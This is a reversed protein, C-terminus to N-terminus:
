FRLRSHHFTSITLPFLSVTDFNNVFKYFIVCSFNDIYETFLYYCKTMKNTYGKFLTKFAVPGEDLLLKASWNFDSCSLSQVEYVLSLPLRTSLQVTGPVDSTTSYYASIVCGISSVISDDNERHVTVRVTMSEEAIVHTCCGRKVIKRSLLRNIVFGPYFRNVKLSERDWEIVIRCLVGLDVFIKYM